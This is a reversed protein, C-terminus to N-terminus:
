LDGALEVTIVKWNNHVEFNGIFPKLQNDFNAVHHDRLEIFLKNLREIKSELREIETAAVDFMPASIDLGDKYGESRIEDSLESM